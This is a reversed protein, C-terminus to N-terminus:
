DIYVVTRWFGRGGQAPTLPLFAWCSFVSWYTAPWLRHFDRDRSLRGQSRLSAIGVTCLLAKPIAEDRPHVADAREERHCAQPVKCRQFEAM